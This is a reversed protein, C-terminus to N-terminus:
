DQQQLDIFRLDSFVEFAHLVKKLDPVFVHLLYEFHGEFTLYASANMAAGTELHAIQLWRSKIM